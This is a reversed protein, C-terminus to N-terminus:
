CRHPRAGASPESPFFARRCHPCHRAPEVWAVPGQTTTLERPEDPAARTSRGCTPCELAESVVAAQEGVNAQIMQRALEDGLAAALTELHDFKTGWPMGEPFVERSLQGAMQALLPRITDPITAADKGM